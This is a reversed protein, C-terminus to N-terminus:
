FGGGYRASIITPHPACHAWFPLFPFLNMFHDFILKPFDNLARQFRIPLCFTVFYYIKFKKFIPPSPSFLRSKWIQANDSRFDNITQFYSFQELELKPKSSSLFTTSPKSSVNPCESHLSIMKFNELFKHVPASNPQFIQKSFKKLM